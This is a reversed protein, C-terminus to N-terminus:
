KDVFVVLAVGSWTSGQPSGAADAGLPMLGVAGPDLHFRDILYDRVLAARARSVVFQNALPGEDSYGEVMLISDVLRPLNPALAADLRAKGEDTLREDGTSAAPAFLVDWRLWVRIAKRDGDKTLVGKRYEEPSIDALNFYGRRNFYGRFLFNHKLAEMNDSLSAMATRAEDLTQKLNTTVGAVQGDKSQLGDLVQRAHQVAKQTDAAITEASRVITAVRQYLEDDKLLRGVTGEGKRIGEAIQAADSTIRASTSALMKIDDSVDDILANASNVTTDVSAMTKEIGAGVDDVTANVKGITVSMQQFLDALVFPERSPITSGATAEPAGATGTTVSLYSGGVLGETQIAAISDTRVLQHLDETVELHVRFKGNPDTPPEIDIVSGAPAGSVRVIAGPQLGTIATFETYVVFKRAFALQREGIMFLAIAFLLLGSLVFMGVGALRAPTAM